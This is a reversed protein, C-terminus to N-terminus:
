QGFLFVFCGMAGYGFQGDCIMQDVCDRYFDVLNVLHRRIAVVKFSFFFMTGYGFRDDWIQM